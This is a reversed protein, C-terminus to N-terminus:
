VANDTAAPEARNGKIPVSHVRKCARCDVNARTMPIPLTFIICIAGFVSLVRVRTDFSGCHPCKIIGEEQPSLGLIELAASVDEEIVEIKVGGIANSWRWDFTVTLEDRIVADINASELRSIALHAEIPTSYASVTKM